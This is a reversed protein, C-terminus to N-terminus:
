AVGHVKAADYAAVARMLPTFGSEDLIVLDEAHYRKQLEQLGDLVRIFSCVATTTNASLVM